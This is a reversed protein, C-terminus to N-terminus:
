IFARVGTCDSGTCGTPRFAFAQGGRGFERNVVCAPRGNDSALVRAQPAFGFDIQVGSVETANTALRATMATLSGPRAHTVSYSTPRVLCPFRRQPRRHVVSMSAGTRWKATSAAVM